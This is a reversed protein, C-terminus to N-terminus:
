ARPSRCSARTTWRSTRRRPRRARREPGGGGRRRQPPCSHRGRHRRRPVLALQRPRPRRRTRRHRRDARPDRGAHAPVPLTRAAWATKPGVYELGLRLGEGTLVRAVERLRQAIADFYEPLHPHGLGTRCGPAWAGSARAASPRRSIRLGPARAPPLDRRGQPLGGAPQRRGVRAEERGHLASRRSSPRAWPLLDAAQAGVSEFGHRGALEIAERQPVKVGIAGCVLDITMRRAAAGGATNVTARAAGASTGILASAALGGLFERRSGESM